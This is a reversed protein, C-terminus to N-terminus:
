RQEWGDAAWAEKSILMRRGHQAKRKPDDGIAVIGDDGVSEIKVIRSRTGKANSAPRCWVEGPKPLTM